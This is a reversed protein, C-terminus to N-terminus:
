IANYTLVVAVVPTVLFVLPHFHAAEAFHGHLMAVTARTLGCGPCPHRTLIAFPCLPIGLGFAAAIVAVIVLLRIARGLPRHTDLLPHRSGNAAGAISAPASAVPEPQM